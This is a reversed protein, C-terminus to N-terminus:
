LFVYVAPEPPGALSDFCSDFAVGEVVSMLRVAAVDKGVRSLSKGALQRPLSDHM